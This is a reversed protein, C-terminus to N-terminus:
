FNVEIEMPEYLASKLINGNYGKNRIEEECLAFDKEECWPDLM